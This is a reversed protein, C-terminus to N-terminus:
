VIEEENDTVPASWSVPSTYLTAALPLNCLHHLIIHVLVLLLALFAEENTGNSIVKVGCSHLIIPMPRLLPTIYVAGFTRIRAQIANGPKCDHTIMIKSAIILLTSTTTAALLEVITSTWCASLLEPHRVIIPM